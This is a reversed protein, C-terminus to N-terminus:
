ISIYGEPPEYSITRKMPNTKAFEELQVELDDLEMILFSLFKNYVPDDIIEEDFVPALLLYRRAVDSRKNKFMKFAYRMCMDGLKKVAENYRNAPKTMGFTDSLWAIANVLLYHEFINILNLESESTENGQHIRYLCLPEVIFAIDAFCSVMFNNLWDSAVRFSIPRSQHIKYIESRRILIQSPIAIGAVMFVAAQEEKPVICSRNYFPPVQTIAGIEDMEDRHVMVMGVNSNPILIDMCREIFTPKLADDSSLYIVFDGESQLFCFTSNRDSGVNRKNQAVFFHIGKEKFKKRYDLAIEYSDDISNNDFLIVEINSYTQTLVSDLCQELYRAYNYNPILISVLPRHNM